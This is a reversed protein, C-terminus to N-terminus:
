WRISGDKAIIILKFEVMAISAEYTCDAFLEIDVVSHWYPYMLDSTELLHASEPNWSGLVDESGVVKVSDFFNTPVKVIFRVRYYNHMIKIFEDVKCYM